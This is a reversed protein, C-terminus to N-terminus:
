IPSRRRPAERRATVMEDRHDMAPRYHATCYLREPPAALLVSHGDFILKVLQNLAEILVVCGLRLDEDAHQHVVALQRIILVGLRNQRTCLWKRNVVWEPSNNPDPTRLLRGVDGLLFIIIEGIGERSM